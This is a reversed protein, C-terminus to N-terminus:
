SSTPAEKEPTKETSALAEDLAKQVVDEAVKEVDTTIKPAETSGGDQVSDTRVEKKGPTADGIQSAQKDPSIEPSTKVDVKREEKIDISKTTQTDESQIEASTDSKEITTMGTM